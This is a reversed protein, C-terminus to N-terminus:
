RSEPLEPSFAPKRGRGENIKLGEIGEDRYVHIWNRVTNPRRQRHLGHLAVARASWNADVKLLAAAKERLYPKPHRDRIKELRQREAEELDLSLKRGSDSVDITIKNHSM